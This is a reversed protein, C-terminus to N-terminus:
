KDECSFLKLFVPIAVIPSIVDKGRMIRLSTVLSMRMAPNLISHYQQLLNIFENSIFDVLEGKYVASIHGM